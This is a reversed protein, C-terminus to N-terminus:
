RARRRRARAEHVYMNPVRGAALDAIAGAAMARVAERRARDEDELERLEHVIRRVHPYSPRYVGLTAAVRGVRRNVEAIPVSRDDLAEIAEVLREEYRPALPVV